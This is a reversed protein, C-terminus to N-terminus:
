GFQQFFAFISGFGALLLIGAISTGITILTLAKWQDVGFLFAALAGSGSGSGPLPIAVFAILFLAGYRKFSESHHKRTKSYLKERFNNLTVSHKCFFDSIPGLWFVAVAAPIMSGAVAFLFTTTTSLGIKIGLPSALKLEVFPLMASFFVILEPSM